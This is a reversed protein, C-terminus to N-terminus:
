LVKIKAFPGHLNPSFTSKMLKSCSGSGSRGNLAFNNCEYSIDRIQLERQHIQTDKSKQLSGGNYFQNSTWQVHKFLSMNQKWMKEKWCITEWCLWLSLCPRFWLVKAVVVIVVKWCFNLSKGNNRVVRLSLSWMYGCISM